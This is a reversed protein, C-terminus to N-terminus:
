VEWKKDGVLQKYQNISIYTGTEVLYLCPKDYLSKDKIYNLFESMVPSDSLTLGSICAVAQSYATVYDARSLADRIYQGHGGWCDYRNIHPNRIGKTGEGYVSANYDNTWYKPECRRTDFWFKQEILLKVTRDKFIEDLMLKQWNSLNEFRSDSKRFITWLDDDWYTLFTRVCIDIRNCDANAFISVINDKAENIFSMFEDEGNQIGNEAYFLRANADQFKEFAESLRSRLNEYKARYDDVTNRLPKILMGNFNGGFDAFMKVKAREHMGSVNAEIDKYIEANYAELNRSLLAEKAAESLPRGIQEALFFASSFILHDSKVNTVYAFNNGNKFVIVKHDVSRLHLKLEDPFEVVEHDLRQKLEEAIRDFDEKVFIFIDSFSYGDDFVDNITIEMDRVNNMEKAIGKIVPRPMDVSEENPIYLFARSEIWHKNNFLRFNTSMNAEYNRKIVDQYPFSTTAPVNWGTQTLLQRELAAVVVMEDVASFDEAARDVPIDYEKNIYEKNEHWVTKIHCLKGDESVSLVEYYGKNTTEVYAFTRNDKCTIYNPM